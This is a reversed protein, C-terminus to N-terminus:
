TIQELKLLLIQTLLLLLPFYDYVHTKKAKIEIETVKNRAM